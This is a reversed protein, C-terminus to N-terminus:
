CESVVRISGSKEQVKAVNERFQLLVSPEARKKALTEEHDADKANLNQMPSWPSCPWCAVILDSKAEETYALAKTQVSSNLLDWGSM